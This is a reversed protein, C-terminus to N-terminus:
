KQGELIAKLREIAQVESDMTKQVMGGMFLKKVGGVKARLGFTLRTGGDVPELTYRGQPRVPGAITEFALLRDPEYTTVRYDAQIRRGGPGKVVQRYVEGEGQGSQRQIELVGDRWKTCNEGDALFAFVESPPRHIEVRHQAQPM